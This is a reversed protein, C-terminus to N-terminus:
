LMNHKWYHIQLNYFFIDVQIDQKVYFMRNISFFQLVTNTITQNHIVAVLPGLQLHGQSLSPWPGIHSCHSIVWLLRWSSPPHGLGAWYYWCPSYIIFSYVFCGNNLLQTDDKIICKYFKYSFFQLYSMQSDCFFTSKIHLIHIAFNFKFSSVGLRELIPPFYFHIVSLAKHRCGVDLLQIGTQWGAATVQHVLEGDWHSLVLYFCLIYKPETDDAHTDLKQETKIIYM